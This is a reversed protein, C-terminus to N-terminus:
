CVPSPNLIVYKRINRTIETHFESYHASSFSAFNKTRVNHQPFIRNFTVIKIMAGEGNQIANWRIDTNRYQIRRDVNSTSAPSPTFSHSHLLYHRLNLFSFDKKHNFSAASKTTKREKKEKTSIYTVFGYCFWIHNLVM